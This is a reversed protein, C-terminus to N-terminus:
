LGLTGLGTGPGTPPPTYGPLPLKIGAEAPQNSYATAAFTNLLAIHQLLYGLSPVEDLQTVTLTVQVSVQYPSLNTGFLSEVINLATVRVPVIRNPGWVFLTVLAAGQQPPAMLLEIASLVPYVGTSAAQANAQELADTADLMLTFIITEQPAGAAQNLQSSGTAAPNPLITRTLTEPNYPFIIIKPSAASGDYRVFAGKLIVPSGPFGAM